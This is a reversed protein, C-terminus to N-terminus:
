CLKVCEKVSIKSKNQGYEVMKLIIAYGLILGIRVLPWGERGLGFRLKPSSPHASFHWEERYRRRSKRMSNGILDAM